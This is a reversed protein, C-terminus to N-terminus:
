LNQKLAVEIIDAIKILHSLDTPITPYIPIVSDPHHIFYPFFKGIKHIEEFSSDGGEFDLMQTQELFKNNLENYIVAEDETVITHPVYLPIRHAVPDRRDKLERNWDDHETIYPEITKFTNSKKRFKKSFFGVDMDNIRNLLDPELEHVFCWALNDMAGRINMYIINVDRSLEMQEEHSLPEEREPHVVHTLTQYAYFLMSFRRGAGHQLFYRAEDNKLEPAITVCKVFWDRLPNFVELSHIYQAKLEAQNLITRKSKEEDCVYYGFLNKYEELHTEYDLPNM